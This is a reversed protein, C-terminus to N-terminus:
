ILNSIQRPKVSLVFIEGPAASELAIGARQRSVGSAASVPGIAGNTSAVGVVGGAGLSAAAVAEVISNEGYVAIAEGRLATAEGIFGAIEVNNSAALVVQGDAATDIQVPRRPIIDSAVNFSDSNRHKFGPRAM